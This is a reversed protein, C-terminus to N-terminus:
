PCNIATDGWWDKSAGACVSPSLGLEYYGSYYGGDNTLLSFNGSSELGTALGYKQGANTSSYLYGYGALASEKSLTSLYPNLASALTTSWNIDQSPPVAYALVIPYNGNAHYYMELALQIQRMESLRRADRAKMRASNLSTLVISSLLSIIAIVVLLEVLTFGKQFKM